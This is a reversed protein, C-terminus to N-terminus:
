LSCPGQQRWAEVYSQNLEIAKNFAEISENYKSLNLLVDGKNYWAVPDSENIVSHNESTVNDAAANEIALVLILLLLSGVVQTIRM